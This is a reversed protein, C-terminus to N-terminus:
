LVESKDVKKSPTPAPAPPTQAAPVVVPPSPSWPREPSRGIPARGPARPLSMVPVAPSPDALTASPLPPPEPQAPPSSASPQDVLTAAAAPAAAPSGALARWAVGIAAFAIVAAGVAFAVTRGRSRPLRLDFSPERRPGSGPPADDEMPPPVSGLARHFATALEKASQFREDIKEAFATKFFSELSEPLDPRRERLPVIRHACLNMLLDDTDDGNVPLEGTIGEYAITALSWLDCRHDLKSSARAQEPSMYSPTGFVLGKATAYAPAARHAHTTRAIGFDLLKVLPHGDEDHSLFVNAPKLDRHFVGEAHAAALARSVQSVITAVQPIPVKGDRALVNELTEGELLEMVLYVVGEEEGHDTVRVIHRTKRSLRAAVQAEFLFRAAATAPDELDDAPDAQTLLKLAVQEALTKHHAAWVEGMSGRGLLRVLEYKGAVLHGVDVDTSAM